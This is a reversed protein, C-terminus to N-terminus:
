VFVRVKRSDYCYGFRQCVWTADGVDVIPLPAGSDLAALFAVVQPMIQDRKKVMRAFVNWDPQVPGQIGASVGRFLLMEARRGSEADSYPSQVKLARPTSTNFDNLAIRLLEHITQHVILSVLAM